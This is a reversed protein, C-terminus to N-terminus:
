SGTWQFVEITQYDETTILVKPLASEQNSDQSVPREKLTDHCLCINNDGGWLPEGFIPVSAGERQLM